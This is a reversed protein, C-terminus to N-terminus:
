WRENECRGAAAVPVAVVSVATAALAVRVFTSPTATEVCYGRATTEGGIATGPNSEPRRPDCREEDVVEFGGRRYKRSFLKV